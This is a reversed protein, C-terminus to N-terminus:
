IDAGVRNNKGGVTNAILALGSLDDWGKVLFHL